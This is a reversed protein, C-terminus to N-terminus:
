LCTRVDFLFVLAGSCLECSQCSNLPRLWFVKSTDSLLQGGGCMGRMMCNHKSPAREVADRLFVGDMSEAAQQVENLASASRLPATARARVEQCATALM